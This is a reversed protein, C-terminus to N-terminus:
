LQNWPYCLKLIYGLDAQCDILTTKCVLFCQMNKIQKTCNVSRICFIMDVSKYVSDLTFNLYLFDSLYVTTYFYFLMCVFMLLLKLKSVRDLNRRALRKWFSLLVFVKHPRIIKITTIVAHHTLQASFYPLM